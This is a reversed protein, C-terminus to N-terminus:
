QDEHLEAFKMVIQSKGAGGPGYLLFRRRGKESGDRPSFHQGLEGLLQTRGTFRESPNPNYVRHGRDEWSSTPVDSLIVLCSSDRDEVRLDDIFYPSDNQQAAAVNYHNHQDGAIYTLASGRADVNM